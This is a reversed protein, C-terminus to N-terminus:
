VLSLKLTWISFKLISNLRKNVLPGNVTKTVIKNVRMNNM